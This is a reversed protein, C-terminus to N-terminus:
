WISFEILMMNIDLIGIAVFNLVFSIVPCPAAHSFFKGGIHHFIFLEIEFSVPRRSCYVLNGFNAAFSDLLQQSHFISPDLIKSSTTRRM